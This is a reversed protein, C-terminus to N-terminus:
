IKLDVCKTISLSLYVVTSLQHIAHLTQVAAGANHLAKLEVLHVGANRWNCICVGRGLWCTKITHCFKISKSFLVFNVHTLKFFILVLSNRCHHM